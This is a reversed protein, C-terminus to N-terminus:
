QRHYPCSEPTCFLAFSANGEWERSDPKYRFVLVFADSSRPGPRPCDSWRSCASHAAEEPTAARVDLPKVRTRRRGPTGPIILKTHFIETVEPATNDPPM